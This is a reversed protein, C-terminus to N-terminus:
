TSEEPIILFVTSSLFILGFLAVIGLILFTAFHEEYEIFQFAEEEREELQDIQEYVSKLGELDKANFSHGGTVKAINELTEGDYEMPQNRYTTIGFPGRVPFPAPESSGIGITHVVIKLEKAALAAEGPTVSGSNNKGDTVLVIVKSESDLDRIRKLSVALANGIATGNGAMGTELADVFQKLVDHDVTLPCQTFAEEGFVVLGIRDGPRKDIFEKVVKKLATLRDVRDDNIFFDMAQMSASVDLSLIIDRGTTAVESFSTGTQPRALAIVFLIYSLARLTQLVPQRLTMRTSPILETLPVWSSFHLKREFTKRRGWGLILPTFALLILALPLEFRM